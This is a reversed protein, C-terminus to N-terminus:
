TFCREFLAQRDRLFHRRYGLPGLRPILLAGKGLNRLDYVDDILVFTPPEKCALFLEWQLEPSESADLYLLDIRDEFGKLFEVGDAVIAKVPAKLDAIVDRSIEIAAPEIDVSYVEGGTRSAFHAFFYTAWGDGALYNDATSRIAGIEVIKAGQPRKVLLRALTERLTGNRGSCLTIQNFPILSDVSRCDFVFQGHLWCHGHWLPSFRVYHPHRIVSLSYRLGALLATAELLNDVSHVEVILQPHDREILGRAGRLVELEAGETDCKLFDIPVPLELSDVTVAPALFCEQSDKAYHHDRPRGASVHLSDGYITLSLETCRDWAACSFTTVNPANDNTIRRVADPFPEIAYIHEFRDVCFRTWDGENAGIDLFGRGSEPIWEVLWSEDIM